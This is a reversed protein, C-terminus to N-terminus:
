QAKLSQKLDWHSACMNSEKTRTELRTRFTGLATADSVPLPLDHFMGKRARELVGDAYRGALCGVVAGPGYIRALGIQRRAMIFAGFRPGIGYFFLFRDKGGPLRDPSRPDAVRSVSKVREQAVTLRAPRPDVGLPDRRGVLPSTCASRAPCSAAVAHWVCSANSMALRVCALLRSVSFRGM